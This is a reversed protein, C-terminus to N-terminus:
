ASSPMRSEEVDRPSPSTYLLCNSYITGNNASDSVSYALADGVAPDWSNEKFTVHIGNQPDFNKYGGFTFGIKSCNVAQWADVAGQIAEQIADTSMDSMTNTSITWKVPTSSWTTSSGNNRRIVTYASADMTIGLHVFVLSANVLFRMM